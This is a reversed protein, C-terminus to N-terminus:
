VESVAGTPQLRATYKTLGNRDASRKYSALFTEVSTTKTGGWTVTLTRTVAVTTEPARGAFLADPGTTATDDYLGSLEIAPMRAIGVPTHEEWSDGFAHTEETISEVDVDNISLVHQSIDVPTGSGNDYEIKIGSPNSNAV